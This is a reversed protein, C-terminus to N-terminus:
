GRHSRSKPSEALSSVWAPRIGWTASFSAGTELVALGDGSALANPACTMPELALGRRAEAPAANDGTYVVIWRFRADGWVEIRDNVEQGRAFRAQWRGDSGMALDTFCELVARDGIMATEGDRCFQAFDTQEVPEVGVPRRREAVVVHKRAPLALSCDDLRAPGAHLYSHFGVGFPARRRGLNTATTAIELGEATLGYRVSIGVTFPYGPQAQVVDSLTVHEETKEEVKWGDFRVLGHIANQNELDNIAAQARVGDFVYSGGLLRSPWPALVQGRSGPAIEDEEFGLCVPRGHVEYQRLTAGVETVVARQGGRTLVFQEGSAPREM